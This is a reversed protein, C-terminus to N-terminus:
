PRLEPPMRRRQRIRSLQLNKGTFLVSTKKGEMRDAHEEAIASGLERAERQRQEVLRANLVDPDEASFGRENRDHRKVEDVIAMSLPYAVGNTPDGWFLIFEADRDSGAYRFVKYVRRGFHDSDQPVLRLLPDHEKLARAVAEEYAGQPVLLGGDTSTLGSM